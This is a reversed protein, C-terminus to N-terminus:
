AILSSLINMCPIYKNRVGLWILWSAMCDDFVFGGHNEKHFRFFLGSVGRYSQSLVRNMVESLFSMMHM